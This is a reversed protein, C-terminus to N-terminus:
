KKKNTAKYVRKTFEYIKDINAFLPPLSYNSNQLFEDNMEALMNKSKELKSRVEAINEPSCQKFAEESRNVFLFEHLARVEWGDMGKYEKLREQSLDKKWIEILEQSDVILYLTVGDLGNINYNPIDYKKLIESNKLETM